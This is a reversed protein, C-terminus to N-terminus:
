RLVSPDFQFSENYQPAGLPFIIRSDEWKIGLIMELGVLKTKSDIKSIALVDIEVKVETGGEQPFLKRYNSGNLKIFGFSEKNM